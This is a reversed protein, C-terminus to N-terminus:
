DVHRTVYETKVASGRDLYVRLLMQFHGRGPKAKLREMVAAASRRDTLFDVAGVPAAPHETMIALIARGPKLGAYTAVIAFATSPAPTYALPEGTQPNRNFVLGDGGFAFDQQVPLGRMLANMQWAGLLILNGDSASDWNALHAPQARLPVGASALFSTLRQVALAEGMAAFEHGQGAALEPSGFVVLAPNPATMFYDNWGSAITPPESGSESGRANALPQAPSALSNRSSDKAATLFGGWIPAFDRAVAEQRSIGFREEWGNIRRQLVVAWVVSALAVVSLAALAAWRGRALPANAGAPERPHFLVAFRGKPVEIVIEDAAGDGAYYEELRKRLRGAQVRVSADRQPDYSSPKGCADIGVTYEKLEEAPATLAKEGLYALLNRLGDSNKLEPCQLVRDLQARAAEPSPAM